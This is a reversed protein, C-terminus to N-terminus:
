AAAFAAAFSDLGALEALREAETTSLTGLLAGPPFSQCTDEGIVLAIWGRAVEDDTTQRALALAARNVTWERKPTTTKGLTWPRDAQNGESQWALVTSQRDSDMAKFASRLAAADEADM